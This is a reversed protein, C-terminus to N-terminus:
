RAADPPFLIQWATRLMIVVDLLPSWNELYLMDSELRHSVAEVTRAEGRFGRVQALGTIGPKVFARIHFASMVQAFQVNHEVLHPRPGVISMEGRLVNIFQPFEDLSYRRLVRGAPFIRADGGDGSAAAPHMTRFKWIVFERNQIGARVQRFFLPGPAQLRHILWVAVALPPFIFLLVLLSFLIDFFRKLIRNFPNELPELHLSFFHLGDDEFMSISHGLREALDSMILLRAGSHQIPDVLAAYDERFEILVVQSVRHTNIVRALGSSLGLVPCQPPSCHVHNEDCLVGVTRLGFRAKRQLWPTLRAVRDCSGVLLTNEQRMDRFSLWVLLGPLACNTWLLVIYLVPIFSVLFFRSIHGNDKTIFLFLLLGGVSWTTQRFVVPLHELISREYLAERVSGRRGLLNGALLGAVLVLCYANYRTLDVGRYSTSLHALIAFWAWFLFIVATAQLAIFLAEVGRIRQSIM